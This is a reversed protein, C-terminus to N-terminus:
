LDGINEIQVGGVRPHIVLRGDVIVADEEWHVPGKMQAAVPLFLFATTTHSLQYLPRKWSWLDM